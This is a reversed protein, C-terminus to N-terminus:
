PKLIEMLWLFTYLLSPRPTQRVNSGGRGCQMDAEINVDEETESGKPFQHCHVAPDLVEWFSSCSIFPLSPRAHPDGRLWIMLTSQM